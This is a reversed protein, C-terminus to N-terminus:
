LSCQWYNGLLCSCGYFMLVLNVALISLLLTIVLKRGRVPPKPPLQYRKEYEKRYGDASIIDLWLMGSMLGFIWTVAFVLGSALAPHGDKCALYWGGVTAIEMASILQVRVGPVMEHQIWKKLLHDDPMLMREKDM